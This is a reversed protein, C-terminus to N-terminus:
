TLCGVSSHSRCNSMQLVSLLRRYDTYDLTGGKLLAYKNWETSEDSGSVSIANRYTIAHNTTINPM